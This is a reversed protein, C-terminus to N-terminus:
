ANTIHLIIKEHINIFYQTSTVNKSHSSCDVIVRNSCKLSQSNDTPGMNIM